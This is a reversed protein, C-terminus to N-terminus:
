KASVSGKVNWSVWSVRERRDIAGKSRGVDHDAHDAVLIVFAAASTSGKPPMVNVFLTVEPSGCRLGALLGGDLRSSIRKFVFPLLSAFSFQTRVPRTNM